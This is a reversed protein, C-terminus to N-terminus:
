LYIVYCTDKGPEGACLQWDNVIGSALEDTIAGDLFTANCSEHSVLNLTVKMLNESGNDHDPFNLSTDKNIKICM